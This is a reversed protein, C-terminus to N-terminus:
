GTLAAILLMNVQSIMNSIDFTFHIYNTKHIYGTLLLLKNKPVRTNLIETLSSLKHM